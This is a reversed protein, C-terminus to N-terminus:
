APVHDSQQHESEHCHLQPFVLRLRPGVCEALRYSARYHRRGCPCQPHEEAKRVESGGGAELRILSRTRAESLRSDGSRASRQYPCVPTDAGGILSSERGPVGDGAGQYARRRQPSGGSCGSSGRACVAKGHIIPGHSPALGNGSIIVSSDKVMVSRGRGVHIKSAKSTKSGPQAPRWSVSGVSGGACGPDSGMVCAAGGTGVSIAGAM